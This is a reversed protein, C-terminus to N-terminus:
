HDVIRNNVLKKFVKIVVSLLTVPHYNKATSREEVNKLVPFVLSVKSCDPFCCVKLYMNFPEALIDSLEPKCNKLIVMPICEPCPARLSDLNM